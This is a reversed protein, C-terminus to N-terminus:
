FNTQTKRDSSAQALTSCATNSIFVGCVFSHYEFGLIGSACVTFDWEVTRFSATSRFVVIFYIKVLPIEASFLAKLVSVFLTVISLVNFCFKTV